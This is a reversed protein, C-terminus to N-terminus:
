RPFAFDIQQEHPDVSIVQVKVRDGLRYVKGRSRGRLTYQKEDFLYYDDEMDRVRILGEILLDKIEVFLGYETVGGIVGDLVDGIHRKMYEVQMVKVSAREAEM